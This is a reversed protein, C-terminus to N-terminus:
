RPRIKDLKQRAELRLGEIKLYDIDDPLLRDELRKAKEIENLGRQLYGEYKIETEVALLIDAPYDTLINFEKAIETLPINRKLMEIYSLGGTPVAGTMKEVFDKCDALKVRQALIAMADNYLSKRKLFKEYREDTVLGAKRGIETLRM